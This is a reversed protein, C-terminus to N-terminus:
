AAALAADLAAKAKEVIVKQAAILAETTAIRDKINALANEASAVSTLDAILTQYSAINSDCSAIAQAIDTLDYYINSIDTYLTFLQNYKDQAENAANEAEEVAIILINLEAFADDYATLDDGSFAAVLAEFDIVRQKRDVLIVKESAILEKTQEVQIKANRVATNLADITAQPEDDEIADDLEAQADTLAKENIELTRYLGTALVTGSKPAGINTEQAAVNDNLSYRISLVVSQKLSYVPINYSYGSISSTQVLGYSYGYQLDYAAKVTALSSSNSMYFEGAADNYIRNMKSHETSAVSSASNAETRQVRLEEMQKALADKDNADLAELAAKRATQNAIETNWRLTEKKVYAEASVVGAELGAVQLKYGLLDQNLSNLTNIGEAYNNYLSKLKQDANNLLALEYTAASVKARSIAEEAEAKIRELEIAFRQKAQELEQKNLEALSKEYEAQAEKYAKEANAYILESEAQAKYLVAMAELQKAKANRIAEVSASEKDDVCAGLSLIGALAAVLMLKKRM